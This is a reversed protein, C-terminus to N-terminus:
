NDVEVTAPNTKQQVKKEQIHVSDKKDTTQGTTSKASDKAQCGTMLLFSCLLVIPISKKRM